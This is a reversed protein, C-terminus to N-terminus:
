TTVTLVGRMLGYHGPFTCLFTYKEGRRLKSMPVVATATEGPGLLPTSAIIRPDKPKLYSNALGAAMGDKAVADVDATRVLVWNHGMTNRPLKGANRLTVKIQTCRQSFSLSKLDYQLNDNAVVSATCANAAVPRPASTPTQALAAATGGAALLATAFLSAATARPPRRDALRITTHELM